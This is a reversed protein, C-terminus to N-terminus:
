RLRPSDYSEKDDHLHGSAHAPFVLNALVHGYPLSHLVSLVIFRAPVNLKEGVYKM